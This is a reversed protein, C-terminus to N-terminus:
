PKAQPSEPVVPKASTGPVALVPAASVPASPASTPVTPAAVDALKPTEPFPKGLKDLYYRAIPSIDSLPERKLSKTFSEAAAKPMGGELQILGLDFLRAAVTRSQDPLEMFTRTATGLEGLMWMQGAM